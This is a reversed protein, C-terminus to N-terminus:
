LGQLQYGKPWVVSWSLKLETKEKPKLDFKWHHMGKINKADAVYGSTTAEKRVAVVVKENQSEPVTEKVVVKVPSAHLNQIETIYQREIVNDKSIVGEEKRENKLTNRKVSIQDDIGFYLGYEEGPRLLSLSTQGIFADDRFLNVAGPLLPADGNLKMLAVIYADSSVQPKVHVQVETEADFKGVLLKTDSGDSMVRAPGSIKYETVFGGTNIQAPTFDADLSLRRAEAKQRWEALPDSAGLRENQGPAIPVPIASGGRAAAERAKAANEAEIAKKYVEDEYGMGVKNKLDTGAGSMSSYNGYSRPEPIEYANLWTTDLEPLATTRQPRATSLTLEIGKWDEGTKQRVKGYQVIDLKGNDTLRADYLPEWTAGSVQYSLDLTLKAAESSELPILIANSRTVAASPPSHSVSNAQAVLIKRQLTRSKVEIETFSKQIAAMEDHIKNAAAIWQETKLDPTGTRDPVISTAQQMMRELFEKKSQLAASEAVLVLKQDELPEIVGTMNRAPRVTPQRSQIPKFSVAGLKVVAEAKGKARLSEEIIFEPLGSFVVTQAGQPINVIARRTVTARDAFVTVSTIESEAMIMGDFMLESGGATDSGAMPRWDNILRTAEEIDVKTMNNRLYIRWKMAENEADSDVQKGRSSADQIALYALGYWKLARVLDRSVGDAGERYLRGVEIMAIPDGANAEALYEEPTRIDAVQENIPTLNADEKEDDPSRVFRASVEARQKGANLKNRFAEFEDLGKEQAMQTRQAAFPTDAFPDSRDQAQAATYSLLLSTSLIASFLVHRM